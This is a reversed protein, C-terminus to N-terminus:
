DQCVVDSKYKWKFGGASKRMGRCCMTINSVNVGNKRSAESVSIYECIFVGNLDYKCVAKFFNTEIMKNIYDEKKWQEKKSCSIKKRVEERQMSQRLRKVGEEYFDKDEWLKKQAISNNKRAIPFNNNEKHTCWRLNEVRNDCRNGNIHDVCPKNEPNPIFAKAVLQHVTYRDNTRLGIYEYGNDGVRSARIREKILKKHSGFTVFREVSKIRGLNSVQYEGEYGEIDKWIEEM